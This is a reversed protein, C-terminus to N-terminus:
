HKINLQQQKKGSLYPQFNRYFIPFHEMQWSIVASQKKYNM